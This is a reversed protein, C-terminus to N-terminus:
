LHSFSLSLNNIKDIISNLSLSHEMVGNIGSLFGKQLCPDIYNNDLLFKELRQALIWHFLKGITSTLAIPHFNEPSNADGKKHFLLIRGSCWADPAQSSRLSCPQWFYILIYPLNKTM